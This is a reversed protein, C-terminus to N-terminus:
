INKWNLYPFLETWINLMNVQFQTHMLKQNKQKKFSSVFDAYVNTIHAKAPKQNKTKEGYIVCLTKRGTAQFACM